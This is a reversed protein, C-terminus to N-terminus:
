VRVTIQTLRRPKCCLWRGFDSRPQIAQYAASSWGDGTKKKKGFLYMRVAPSGPQAARHFGGCDCDAVFARLLEFDLM